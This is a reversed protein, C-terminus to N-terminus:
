QSEEVVPKLDSVRKSFSKELMKWGLFGLVFLLILGIGSGVASLFLRDGSLREASSKLLAGDDAVGDVTVSCMGASSVASEYNGDRFAAYAESLFGGADNLKELLTAVNAGADEAEALVIFALDLDTEANNLANSAENTDVALCFPAFCVILLLSVLLCVAVSRFGNARLSLQLESERFDGCVPM